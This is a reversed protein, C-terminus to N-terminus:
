PKCALLATVEKEGDRYRLEYLRERTLLIIALVTACVIVLRWVSTNHKM